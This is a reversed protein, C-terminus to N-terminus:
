SSTQKQKLYKLNKIESNTQVENDNTLEFCEIKRKDFIQCPAFCIQFYDDIQKRSSIQNERKM